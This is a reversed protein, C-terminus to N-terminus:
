INRKLRFLNKEDKIISDDIKKNKELRSSKVM